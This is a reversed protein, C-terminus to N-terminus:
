LAVPVGHLFIAKPSKNTVPHSWYTPATALWVSLRIYDTLTAPEYEEEVASARLSCITQWTDGPLACALSYSHAYYIRGHDHTSCTHRRWLEARALSCLVRLAHSHKCYGAHAHAPCTCSRWTVTYLKDGRTHYCNAVLPGSTDPDVRLAWWARHIIADIIRDWCWTGPDLRAAVPAAAALLAAADYSVWLPANTRVPLPHRLIDLPEM